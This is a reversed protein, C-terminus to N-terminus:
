ALRHRTCREPGIGASKSNRLCSFNADISEGAMASRCTMDPVDEGANVETKEFMDKVILKRRRKDVEDDVKVATVSFNQGCM